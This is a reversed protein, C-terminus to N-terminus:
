EIGQTQLTGTGLIIHFVVLMTYTGNVCAKLYVSLRLRHWEILTDYFTIFVSHCQVYYSNVQCHILFHICQGADVSVPMMWLYCPANM